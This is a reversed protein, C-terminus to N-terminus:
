LVPGAYAPSHARIDMFWSGGPTQSELDYAIGYVVWKGCAPTMESQVQIQQGYNVGPNFLTRLVIGQPDFRPYSVLGTDPSILPILGNRSGGKPWIILTRSDIIFSINAARVASHIQDLATGPFYPNSLIVSVGNNEFGMGALKALGALVVAVDVSGKYSTAPVPKMATYGASFSDICFSVDPASDFDIWSNRITGEHVLALVGGAPGASLEVTNRRQVSLSQGLTSLQNMMSLHMGYIRIQGNGQSYAGTKTVVASVRLGNLDVTDAQTGNFYNPTPAAGNQGPKPALNITIGLAREIFSTM